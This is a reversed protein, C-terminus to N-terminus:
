LKNRVNIILLVNYYQINNYNYIIIRFISMFLIQLYYNFIINFSNKTPYTFEKIISHLLIETKM